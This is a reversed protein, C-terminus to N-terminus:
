DLIKGVYLDKGETIVRDFRNLHKKYEADTTKYEKAFYTSETTNIIDVEKFGVANGSIVYVGQVGDIVRLASRPFGIGEVSSKVIRITQSRTYDFDEPVEEILFQLVVSDADTQTIKRQLTAKLKEGSSYLFTIPYKSGVIFDEADKVSVECLTYWDFDSIIKGLALADYDAKQQQTLSHFSDVTLTNLLKPTFYNEYGDLLTSFYGAKPSFVTCLPSQFSTTLQNKEEQLLKIQDEFSGSSTTILHRKNFNVVLDSKYQQTVYIDDDNVSKKIKVLSDYILADIKSVDSTLYSNDIASKELVAIKNNIKQIKNQVDVGELDSFVTAVMQNSGLKQSESVAYNIIGSQEAYIVTENRIIYGTSELSNDVDQVSVYQYAVDSTLTSVLQIIIYVIVFGSVCFVALSKLLSKAKM